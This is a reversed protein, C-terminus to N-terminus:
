NLIYYRVPCLVYTRRWKSNCLTKRCFSRRTLSSIKIELMLLKLKTISWLIKFFSRKKYLIWSRTKIFAVNGAHFNVKLWISCTCLRQEGMFNQSFTLDYLLALLVSRSWPDPLSNQLPVSQSIKSPPWRLWPRAALGPARRDSCPSQRLYLVSQVALDTLVSIIASCSSKSQPTVQWAPRMLFNVMHGSPIWSHCLLTDSSGLYVPWPLLNKGYFSISATPPPFGHDPILSSVEKM